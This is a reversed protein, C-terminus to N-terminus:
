AEMHDWYNSKPFHGAAAEKSLVLFSQHVVSQVLGAGMGYGLRSIHYSVPLMKKM